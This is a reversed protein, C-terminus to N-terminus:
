KKREKRLIGMLVVLIATNVIIKIVAFWIEFQEM